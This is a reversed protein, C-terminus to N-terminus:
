NNESGGTKNRLHFALCVLGGADGNDTIIKAIIM